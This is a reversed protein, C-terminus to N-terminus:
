RVVEVLHVCLLELLKREYLHVHSAFDTPPQPLCITSQETRLHPRGLRVDSINKQGSLSRMGSRAARQVVVRLQTIRRRGHGRGPWSTRGTPEHFGLAGMLLQRQRAHSLGRRPISACGGCIASQLWLRFNLDSQRSVRRTDRVTYRRRRADLPSRRRWRERCGSSPAAAAITNVGTTAEVTRPPDRRSRNRSRRRTTPM